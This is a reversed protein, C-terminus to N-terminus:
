LDDATQRCELSVPHYTPNTNQPVHPWKDCTATKHLKKLIM